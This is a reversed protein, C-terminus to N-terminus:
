TLSEKEKASKEKIVKEEKKRTEMRLAVGVMAQISHGKQNGNNRIVM